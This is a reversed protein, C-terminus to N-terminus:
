VSTKRIEVGVSGVTMMATNSNLVFLDNDWPCGDSLLKQNDTWSQPQGYWQEFNEHNTQVVLFTAPCGFISIHNDSAADYQRLGPTHAPRSQANPGKANQDFCNPGQVLNISFGPLLLDNTNKQLLPSIPSMAAIPSNPSM